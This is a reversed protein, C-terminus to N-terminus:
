GPPTASSSCWEPARLLLDTAFRSRPWSGRSGSPRRGPTVCCAAPVLADSGLAESVRRFALLGADPDPADAFWGLMVPLLTRQIARGVASAPPSHRSTACPGAPDAYGLAAM